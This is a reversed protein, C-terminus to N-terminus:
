FQHRVGIRVRQTGPVPGRPARPCRGLFGMLAALALEGSAAESRSEHWQGAVPVVPGPPDGLVRPGLRGREGRPAGAGPPGLPSPVRGGSAGPVSRGGRPFRWHPSLSTLLKYVHRPGQALLPIERYRQQTKIEKKKKGKETKKQNKEGSFNTKLFVVCHIPLPSAHLFALKFFTSGSTHFKLLFRYIYIRARGKYM